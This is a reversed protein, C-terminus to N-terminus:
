IIVSLGISFEPFLLPRNKNKQEKEKFILLNCTKKILAKAPNEQELFKTLIIMVVGNGEIRYFILGEKKWSHFFRCNFSIIERVKYM